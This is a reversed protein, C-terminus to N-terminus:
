TWPTPAFTALPSSLLTFFFFSHTKHTHTMKIKSSLAGLVGGIFSPSCHTIKHSRKSDILGEALTHSPLSQGLFPLAAVAVLYFLAEGFCAGGCTGEPSRPLPCPPPSRCACVFGVFVPDRWCRPLPNM